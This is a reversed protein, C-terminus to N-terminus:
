SECLELEYNGRAGDNGAVKIFYIDSEAEVEFWSIKSQTGDGCSDNNFAEEGTISGCDEAFYITITTDFDSNCLEFSVETNEEPEFRFWLVGDAADVTSGTYQGGLAVEKATECTTNTPSNTDTEYAGIDTYNPTGTGTNPIEPIDIRVQGDMDTAPATNGNGADVCPSNRDLRYNDNNVDVFLPYGSINGTGADGDEICSYTASCNYLDDNCNWIVCNSISPNNGQTKYIGSTTNGVITNNCVISGSNANGFTIGKENDIILNNKIAPASGSDSIYIGDTNDEIICRTIAPSSGSCYVGYNSGGTVTFGTLISNIDEGSSFEVAHGTGNADIITARVVSDDNPDTSTVTCSVGNFDITEYYEGENVEVIVTNGAVDLGHQITAFATAWSLGDNNDSGDPSVYFHFSLPDGCDYQWVGYLILASTLKDILLDLDDMDIDYDQDMDSCTKWLYAMTQPDDHLILWKGTFIKAWTLDGVLQNLDSLEVVGDGDLDGVCTLCPGPVEDAGMDVVSNGDGDGDMAREQGDIDKKGDYNGNLDGTDMCASYQSSDYTFILHYDNSDADAFCPDADINGGGDTGLNSDWGGGSGGCDEIDCYSFNPDCNTETYIEDGATVASNDWFICNTVLPDSYEYSCMGGGYTGATNGAFTCNTLTPMSDDTILLGGAKGLATNGWFICNSLTVDEVEECNTITMGGARNDSSNESIVCNSVTLFSEFFEVGGSSSYASNNSFICDSITGVVQDTYMGGGTDGCENDTFTCGTVTSQSVSGKYMGGGESGAENSTFTCGSVTIEDVYRNYIGGGDGSAKNTTFLCDNITICALDYNYMGGGYENSGSDNANGDTITFRDLIMDNVGTVVHYCNDNADNPENIDGTLTTINLLLNPDRGGKSSETGDFGGYLSVGERTVFSDTRDNSDPKYTGEAVWIEDGGWAIDLADALSDYADTWSTGNDSGNADTDVYIVSGNRTTFSWVDGKPVRGHINSDIRWYYTSNSDLTDPEYTLESIFV